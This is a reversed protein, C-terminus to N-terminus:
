PAARETASRAREFAAQALGARAAALEELAPAAQKLTDIRIAEARANAVVSHAVRELETGRVLLEQGGAWEVATIDPAESLRAALRRPEPTRVRLTVSALQPTAHQPDLWKGRELAGVIRGLRAADEVRSATCLVIATEFRALSEIIFAESLVGVLALPEHLALLAPRPHSLAFALAVARADRRTLSSPRRPAWPALGAADLVSHASRADSRARLALELAASLTRAPPLAEEAFLAAIQRRVAASSSPASGNLRVRGGAPLAFGAALTLLTSTGDSETGLVVQRQAGFAASVGRLEGHTVAEFALTSM